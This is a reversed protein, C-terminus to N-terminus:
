VVRAGESGVGLKRGGGSSTDLTEELSSRYQTVTPSITPLGQPARSVTTDFTDRVQPPGASVSGGTV